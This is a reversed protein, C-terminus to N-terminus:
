GFRPDSLDTFRSDYISGDLASSRTPGGMGYKAYLSAGGAGITGAAGIMGARAQANGADAISSGEFRAGEAGMRLRRAREEGQYIALGARYEGEGAIDSIINEISESSADAGSAASVALARSAVLQARRREELARRQAAAQEQGAASEMQAAEYNKAVQLQAAQQKQAKAAKAQGVAGLVASAISIAIGAWAM